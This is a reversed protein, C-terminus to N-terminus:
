VAVINRIEVAGAGGGAASPAPQADPAAAGGTAEAGGGQVDANVRAGAHSELLSMSAEFTQLDLPQQSDLYRYVLDPREREEKKFKNKLQRRDRQPFMVEMTTFDTGFQRLAKYFDRTEEVTWRKTQKRHPCSAPCGIVMCWDAMMFVLDGRGFCDMGIEVSARPM